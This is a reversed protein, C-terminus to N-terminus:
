VRKSCINFCKLNRQKEMLPPLTATISKPLKSIININNKFDASNSNTALQQLALLIHDAEIKAPTNDSRFQPQSTSRAKKQNESSTGPSCYPIKEQIATGTHPRNRIAEPGGTVMYPYEEVEPSNLNGSHHSSFIVSPSRDDLTRDGTPERNESDSNTSTGAVAVSCTRVHLNLLFQDPKSLAGLIRSETRRFEKSLQKTARGEIEESVQSIYEQAM